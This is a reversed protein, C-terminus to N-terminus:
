RGSRATRAPLARIPGFAASVDDRTQDSDSWIAIVRVPGKPAHGFARIFDAIIDREEEVWRGLKGAGSEIVISRVSGPHYPSTIVKGATTSVATWVYALTQPEPRFLGPKGFLLFLAAGVDDTEKRRIDAGAPLDDVRWRWKLRPYDGPSFSIERFLGAAAGRGMARIAPEGDLVTNTYTTGKGFSQKQWLRAFPEAPDLLVVEHHGARAPASLVLVLMLLALAPIHRM